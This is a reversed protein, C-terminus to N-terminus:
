VEYGKKRVIRRRLVRLGRSVRYSIRPNYGKCQETGEKYTEAGEYRKRYSKSNIYKMLVKDIKTHLQEFLEEKDRPVSLRIEDSAIKLHYAEKCQTKRIYQRYVYDYDEEQIEEVYKCLKDKMSHSSELSGQLEYVAQLKTM